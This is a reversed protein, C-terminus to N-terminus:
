YGTAITGQARAGKSSAIKPWAPMPARTVTAKIYYVDAPRCVMWATEPHHRHNAKRECHKKRPVQSPSSSTVPTKECKERFGSESAEVAMILPM